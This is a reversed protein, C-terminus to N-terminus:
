QFDIKFHLAQNEIGTCWPFDSNVGKMGDLNCQTFLDCVCLLLPSLAM